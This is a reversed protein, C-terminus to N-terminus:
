LNAEYEKLAAEMAAIHKRIQARESAGISSVEDILHKISEAENHVTDMADNLLEHREVASM